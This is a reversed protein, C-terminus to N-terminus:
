AIESVSAGNTVGASRKDELYIGLRNKNMDINCSKLTMRDKVIESGLLICKSDANAHHPM